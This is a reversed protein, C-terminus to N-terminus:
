YILKCLKSLNEQLLKNEDVLDQLQEKQEEVMREHRQAEKNSERLVQIEQQLKMIHANCQELKLRTRNQIDLQVQANVELNNYQVHITRYKEEVDKM